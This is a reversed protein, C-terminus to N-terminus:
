SLGRGGGWMMLHRVRKGGEGWRRACLAEGDSGISIRVGLSCELVVFRINCQLRFAGASSVKRAEFRLLLTTNISYLSKTSVHFKLSQYVVFSVDTRSYHTRRASHYITIGRTINGLILQLYTIHM